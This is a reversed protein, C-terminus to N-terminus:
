EVVSELEYVPIPGLFLLGGQLSISLDLAKKGGKKDLQNMRELEQLIMNGPETQFESYASLITVMHDIGHITTSFAGLPKMDQDLTVEGELEIDMEGSTVELNKVAMTGGNDRWSILSNKAYNPLETGHLQLDIKVLDAKKGFVGVPIERAIVNRAELYLKMQIPLEMNGTDGSPAPRMIHLKVQRAESPNTEESTWSLKEIVMSARQFKQSALNIIVSARTKGFAMNSVPRRRSGIRLDGGDSIIVGHNIKWPFAVLTIHPSTFLLPIKHRGSKVIRLKKLTLEMRYPFGAIDLDQYSISLGQSKQDSVWVEIRDELEGAMYYWFFSYGLIIFLFSSVLIKLRM